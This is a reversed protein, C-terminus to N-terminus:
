LPKENEITVQWLVIKSTVIVGDGRYIEFSGHPGSFIEYMASADIPIAHLHAPSIVPSVERAFRPDVKV